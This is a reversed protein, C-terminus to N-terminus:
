TWLEENLMTLDSQPFAYSATDLLKRVSDM